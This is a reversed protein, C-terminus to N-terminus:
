PHKRRELLLGRFKEGSRISLDRPGGRACGILHAIAEYPRLPKTEGDKNNGALAKIAERIVESKTQRRQRALRKVMGETKADLRVSVPM